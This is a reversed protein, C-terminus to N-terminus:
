IDLWKRLLVLAAIGGVLCLLTRDTAIDWRIPTQKHVPYSVPWQRREAGLMLLAPTVPIREVRRDPTGFLFRGLSPGGEEGHHFYWRYMSMDVSFQQAYREMLESFDDGDIGLEKLLDVGPALRGIGVGSQECILRYIEQETLM